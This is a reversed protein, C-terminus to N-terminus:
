NSMWLGTAKMKYTASSTLIDITISSDHINTIKKQIMTRHVVCQDLSIGLSNSINGYIEGLILYWFNWMDYIECVMFEM